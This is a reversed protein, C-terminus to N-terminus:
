GTCGTLESHTWQWLAVASNGRDCAGYPFYLGILFDALDRRTWAIQAKTNLIVLRALSAVSQPITVEPVIRRERDILAAYTLWQDSSVVWLNRGGPHQRIHLTFVRHIPVEPKPTIKITLHGMWFGNAPGGAQLGLNELTTALESTPEERYPLMLELDAYGIKETQRVWGVYSLPTTDVTTLKM